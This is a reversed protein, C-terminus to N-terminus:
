SKVGTSGMETQLQVSGCSVRSAVVEGVGGGGALSPHTTSALHEPGSTHHGAGPVGAIVVHGTVAPPHDLHGLTLGDLEPPVGEINM